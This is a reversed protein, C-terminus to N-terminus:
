RDLIITVPGDAVADIRMDAGFRGTAVTIGASRLTAIVETVLPETVKGPAAQRRSPRRGKSTDAYLTLQSVVLVDAGLDRM